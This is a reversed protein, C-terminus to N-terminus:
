PAIQKARERQEREAKRKLGSRANAAATQLLVDRDIPVLTARTQQQQWFAFGWEAIQKALESREPENCDPSPM